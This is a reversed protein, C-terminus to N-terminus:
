HLMLISGSWFLSSGGCAGCVSMPMISVDVVHLNAMWAVSGYAVPLITATGSPHYETSSDKAIYSDVDASVSAGPLTEAVIMQAMPVTAIVQWVYKLAAHM